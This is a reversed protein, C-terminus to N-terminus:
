ARETRILVLGAFLGAVPVLAVASFFAAIGNWLVLTVGLALILGLCRREWVSDEIRTATETIRRAAILWWACATLILAAAAATAPSRFLEHLLHQLPEECSKWRLMEGFDQSRQAALFLIPLLITAAAAVASLASRRSRSRSCAILAVAGFLALFGQGALATGALFAVTLWLNRREARRLWAVANAAAAGLLASAFVAEGSDYTDIFIPLLLMASLLEATRIGLPARRADRLGASLLVLLAAGSAIRHTTWAAGPSVVLLATEAAGPLPATRFIPMRHGGEFPGLPPFERPDFEWLLTFDSPGTGLGLALFVGICLACTRALWRSGVPAKEHAVLHRPQMAAPLTSLRLVLLVIWPAVATLKWTLTPQPPLLLLEVGLALSGLLHSTAWTRMWEGPGHGGVFGPPLFSLTLRGVGAVVLLGPLAAILAPRLEVAALARMIPWPGGYGVLGSLGLAIAFSALFAPSPRQM